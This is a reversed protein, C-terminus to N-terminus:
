NHQSLAWRGYTGARVLSRTVHKHCEQCTGETESPESNEMAAKAVRRHLCPPPAIGRKNNKSSRAIHSATGAANKVKVTPM